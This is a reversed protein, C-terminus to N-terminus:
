VPASGIGPSSHSDTTPVSPRRRDCCVVGSCIASRARSRPGDRLRSGSYRARYASVPLWTSVATMEEGGSIRPRGMRRPEPVANPRSDDHDDMASRYADHERLGVPLGVARQATAAFVARLKATLLAAAIVHAREVTAAIRIAREDATPVFTQATAMPETRHRVDAVVFTSGPQNM